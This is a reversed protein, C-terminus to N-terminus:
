QKPPETVLRINSLTRGSSLDVIAIGAGTPADYHIAMRDGNLSVTRVVAGSPLSAKIEPALVGSSSATQTSPRAVIYIIRGILAILGMVILAGMAIVAIRLARVQPDNLQVGALLSVSNGDEVESATIPKPSTQTSMARTVM